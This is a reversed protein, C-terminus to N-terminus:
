VVVEIQQRVRSAVQRLSEALLDATSSTYYYTTAVLLCCTLDSSTPIPGFGESLCPQLGDM